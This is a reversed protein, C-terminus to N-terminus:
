AGETSTVHPLSGIAKVVTEDVIQRTRLQDAVDRRTEGETEATRQWTLEREHAEGLRADWQETLRDVERRNQAALRELEKTHSSGSVLWGRALALLLLFVCGIPTALSAWDV